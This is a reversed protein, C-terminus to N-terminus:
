WLGLDKDKIQRPVYNIVGRRALKSLTDRVMKAPYKPYFDEFHVHPKGYKGKGGKLYTYLDKIFAKYLPIRTRVATKKFIKM